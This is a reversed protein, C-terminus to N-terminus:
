INMRSRGDSKYYITASFTAEPGANSMPLSLMKTVGDALELTKRKGAVELYRMRIWFSSTTDDDDHISSPIQRLQGELITLSVIDPSFFPSKCDSVKPPFVKM